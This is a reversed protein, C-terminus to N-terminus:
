KKVELFRIQNKTLKDFLREIDGVKIKLDKFEEQGKKLQEIEFDKKELKVRVEELDTSNFKEDLEKSDMGARSIYVDPMDSSFKWGYRYCLQQRNMKSAYYTASSHRFLHFHISKGLVNKGLRNLFQRTNDYTKIFIQENSKIGERNREEVFDRVAELCHKWYLSITRGSTKSYEEKLALKVYSDSGTPLQIDEKRINLFEEARAGSCFLVAILYRSEATRCAKFLKEVEQETLYDPTKHPVRTDFFDTMDNAKRDGLKWRLYIRLMRRIDAKTSETFPKKKLTSKLRGSNLDKEFKEIDAKTLKSAPKKFYTLSIKLIELYKLQRAKEIRKGKNVKGLELDELFKPLSKKDEESIKWGKISEIRKDLNRNHISIKVNM